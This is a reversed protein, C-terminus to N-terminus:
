EEDDETIEFDPTLKQAEEWVVDNILSRSDEWADIRDVREVANLFAEDSVVTDEDGYEFHERTYYQYIVPQDQDEIEQLYAILQKVSTAM